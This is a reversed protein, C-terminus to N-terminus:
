NISNTETSATHCFNQHSIKLQRWGNVHLYSSIRLEDFRRLHLKDNSKRDFNGIILPLWICLASIHPDTVTM